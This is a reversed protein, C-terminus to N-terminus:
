FVVIMVGESWYPGVHWTLWDDDGVAVAEAALYSGAYDKCAFTPGGNYTEEWVARGGEFSALVRGIQTDRMNGHPWSTIDTGVPASSKFLDARQTGSVHEKRVDLVIECTRDAYAQDIEFTVLTSIEAGNNSHDRLVTASATVNFDITYDKSHYLSTIIPLITTTAPRSEWGPNRGNSTTTPLSISITTSPQTTTTNSYTITDNRSVLSRISSLSGVPAADALGSLITTITLIVASVCNDFLQSHSLGRGM